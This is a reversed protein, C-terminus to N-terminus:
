NCAQSLPVDAIAVPATGTNLQLQTATKAFLQKLGQVSSASIMSFGFQNPERIGDALTQAGALQRGRTGVVDPLVLVLTEVSPIFRRRITGSAKASIFGIEL